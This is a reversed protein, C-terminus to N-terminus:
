MPIQPHNKIAATENSFRTPPKGSPSAVDCHSISVLVSREWRIVIIAAVSLRPRLALAIREGLERPQDPLGVRKRAVAARRGRRALSFRGILVLRFILFFGRLGARRRPHLTRCGMLRLLLFELIKMRHLTVASLM